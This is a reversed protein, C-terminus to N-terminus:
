MLGNEKIYRSAEGLSLGQERMIKAVMKGRATPKRKRRGGVDEDIQDPVGDDDRDESKTTGLAADLLAKRGEKTKSAKYVDKVLPAYERALNVGQKIAERNKYLFKAGKKVYKAATKAGKKLTDFFGGGRQQEIMMTYELPTMRGGVDEDIQDPVGDDDRDESKTTGLAADLLAKRGEKTKSAKYVDKVLPAYERALNVGQKIAERNKYLFKAGKKVYKAATKAGKKLADFFGGGVMNRIASEAQERGRHRSLVIHKKTRDKVFYSVADSYPSKVEEIYLDRASGGVDEDIQDPVGDDDRDESKTTGLAADLLAKRGEKSKSAKYVDKVLPAYERALNVGQKIAERNKYLFKAGKKVYKAATKAGKKLTDFFGGGVMEQMAEEAEARTFYGTPDGLNKTPSDTSRIFFRM